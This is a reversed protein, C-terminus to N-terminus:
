GLAKGGASWLLGRPYQQAPQPHMVREKRPCWVQAELRFERETEDGGNAKLFDKEKLIFQELATNM